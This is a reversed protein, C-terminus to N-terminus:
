ITFILASACFSMSLISLSPCLSVVPSSWQQQPAPGTAAPMHQQQQELTPYLGMRIAEEFYETVERRYSARVGNWPRCRSCSGYSQELQSQAHQPMGQALPLEAAAAMSVTCSAHSASLGHMGGHHHSPNSQQGTAATITMSPGESADVRATEVRSATETSHQHLPQQQEEMPYPSPDNSPQWESASDQVPHESPADDVADFAFEFDPSAISQQQMVDDAATATPSQRQSDFDMMPTHSAVQSMYLIRTNRAAGGKLCDVNRHPRKVNSYLCKANNRFSATHPYTSAHMRCDILTAQEASFSPSDYQLFTASFVFM